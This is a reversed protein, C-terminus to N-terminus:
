AWPEELVGVGVSGLETALTLLAVKKDVRIPVM